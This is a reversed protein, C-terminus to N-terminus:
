TGRQGNMVAKLIASAAHYGTAFCGHLLFGGTPADWDVMEGAVFIKPYRKLSLDQNLENWPIGGVTSIAEEIPRLGRVPVRLHKVDTILTSGDIFKQMPTFAKLLAVQVRDLKVAAMRERWAAGSLRRELEAETLDPKLDIILAAEEGRALAERVAPVVPYVANGELGHETLTAEGRVCRDGASIRINKLPKGIHVRLAESMELEVGCNSAAFPLTRVGLADFHETWAGTSGTKSWSAGGLAFLCRDVEIMARQGDQEIIPRANDDFGVFTHQVHLHVGKAALRDVIAKLVEAPKIGKEPFVRGSTGIFTPVGLEALWTRLEAVGFATLVPRMLDKPVYQGLLEEGEARNTINLGGEGAVLFKRGVTRAQEYLHVDCTDALVDAAILGAPGGGIIAIRPRSM